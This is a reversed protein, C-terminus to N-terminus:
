ERGDNVTREDFQADATFSTCAVLVQCSRLDHTCFRRVSNHSAVVMNLRFAKVVKEHASFRSEVTTSRLESFFVCEMLLRLLLLIVVNSMKSHSEILSTGYIWIASLVSSM